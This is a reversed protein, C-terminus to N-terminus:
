SVAFVRPLPVSVLRTSVWEPLWAGEDFMNTGTGVVDELESSEVGDVAVVSVVRCEVCGVDRYCLMALSHSQSTPEKCPTRHSETGLLYRVAPSPNQKTYQTM